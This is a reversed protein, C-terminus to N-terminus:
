RAELRARLTRDTVSIGQSIFPEVVKAMAKGTLGGPFEYGFEVDAVCHDDDVPTVTWRSSTEFGAVSSLSIVSGPVWEVIDVTSRLTKPGLKMEAEFRDGLARKVEGVPTFSTVGFMWDPVNEHSSLYDFTAEASAAIEVHRTIVAM